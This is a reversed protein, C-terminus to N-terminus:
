IAIASSSSEDSILTPCCTTAIPLANPSPWDTVVPIILAFSREMGEVGDSSTKAFNIAIVKGESNLLAGGSNGSNIAADTMLLGTSLAPNSVYSMITPNSSWVTVVIDPSVLM